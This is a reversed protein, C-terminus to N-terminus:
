LFVVDKFYMNFFIYLIVKVKLIDWRDWRYFLINVKLIWYLKRWRRCFNGKFYFNKMFIYFEFM